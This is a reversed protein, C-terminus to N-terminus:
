YVYNYIEQPNVFYDTLNFVHDKNLMIVRKNNDITPYIRTQHFHGFLWIKYNMKYELEGLYQEMSKDVQSQDISPLFLDSPSFLIPCTHSLVIDAKYNHSAIKARGTMKELESLQENQFWIWGKQIRYNKDVSYAGPITLINYHNIQYFAVDDLAYLINPYNNEILIINKNIIEEHWKDPNQEACISAREEHNGRILFYTFPLNSLETKLRGDRKNLYYNCGTDGLLIMLDTIPNFNFSDKYTNYFDNIPLASGHIDATVWIRDFFM